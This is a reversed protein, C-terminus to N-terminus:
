FVQVNGASVPLENDGINNIAAYGLRGYNGAGWCRVAGNELVACTHAWWSTLQEVALGGGVSVDGADAPPGYKGVISTNGYGLRGDQGSGWCRVAGTELVVCTHSAGLGLATVLGGVDVDGV